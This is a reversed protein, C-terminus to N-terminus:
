EPMVELGSKPHCKGGITPRAYKSLDPSPLSFHSMRGDGSAEVLRTTPASQSQRWRLVAVYEMEATSSSLTRVNESKTAADICSSVFDEAAGRRVNKTAKSKRELKRMGVTFEGWTSWAVRLTRAHDLLIVKKVARLAPINVLIEQSQARDTHEALLRKCERINRSMEIEMDAFRDNSQNRKRRYSRPSSVRAGYSRAFKKEFKTRDIPERGPNAPHDHKPRALGAEPLDIQDCREAPRQCFSPAYLQVAITARKM